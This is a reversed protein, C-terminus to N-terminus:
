SALPPGPRPRHYDQGSVLDTGRVRVAGFGGALSVLEAPSLAMLGAADDLRAAAAQVLITDLVERQDAPLTESWATLKAAFDRVHPEAAVFRQQEFTVIERGQV